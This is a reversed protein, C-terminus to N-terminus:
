YKNELEEAAKEMAELDFLAPSVGLKFVGYETEPTIESMGEVPVGNEDVWKGNVTKYHEPDIHGHKLYILQTIPNERSLFKTYEVKGNFGFCAFNGGEKRQKYYLTVNGTMTNMLQPQLSKGGTYDKRSAKGAIVSNKVTLEDVSVRIDEIGTPARKWEPTEDNILRTSISVCRGEAQGDEFNGVALYDGDVLIGKGTLTPKLERSEGDYYWAHSKEKSGRHSFKNSIQEGNEDQYYIVNSGTYDEEDDAVSYDLMCLDELNGEECLQMVQDFLNQTEQSIVPAEPVSLAIAAATGAVCVAAAGAAAKVKAASSMKAWLAKLKGILSAKGAAGAGACAVLAASMPELVSNRAEEELLAFMFPAVNYLRTDKKIDLEEVALKIKARARNLHSKVTGVPVGFEEALSEQSQENYYYGIVCLRQMDSLNDIIEQILRQKERDQMMEEPILAMDDPIEEVKGDTNEAPFSQNKKLYAFCKRNAIVAAWNLFNQVDNLSGINKVIELYTEQIMDRVTEEDKVVHMVCVYLYRYSQEYVRAFAEQNGDKYAQVAKALDESTKM